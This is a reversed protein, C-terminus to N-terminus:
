IISTEYVRKTENNEESRVTFLKESFDQKNSLADYVETEIGECVFQYVHVHKDQRFGGYNRGLAQVYDQYSYTPTFMITTTCMQLEIGAGGAQYQAIVVANTIDQTPIEKVSGSIEYVDKGMSLALKKIADKHETYVYFILINTEISEFLVELYELKDQTASEKRLAHCLKGPSDLEEIVDNELVRVRHKKMAKYISTPKFSVNQFTRQPLEGIEEIDLTYTFSNFADNLEDEHLYHDIVNFKRTRGGSAKITELRYCAYKPKYEYKKSRPGFNLFKSFGFSAFYNKCDDWGNSAPTASLLAVSQLSQLLLSVFAKGRQSQGKYMHCEDLIFASYLVEHLTLNKISDTTRISYPITILEQAEVRAIERQWGGEKVKAKPTFVILKVDDTRRWKLYHYVATLTKGCGVDFAFLAKEPASDVIRQQCKYLM